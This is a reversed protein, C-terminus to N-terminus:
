AMLEVSTAGVLNCANGEDTDVHVELLVKPSVRCLVRDYTAACDSSVRLQVYQGDSFGYYEADAPSMHVHREARIVGQPLELMGAPGLVVCGPTGDIQVGQRWGCPRRGRM